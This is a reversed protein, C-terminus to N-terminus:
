KKIHPHTKPNSQTPRTNAATSDQWDHPRILPRCNVQLDTSHNQHTPHSEEQNTQKPTPQTPNPQTANPQAPKPQPKTPYPTNDNIPDAPMLTLIQKTDCM